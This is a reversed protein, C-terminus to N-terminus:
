PTEICDKEPGYRINEIQRKASMRVRISIFNVGPIPTSNFNSM